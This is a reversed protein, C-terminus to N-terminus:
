QGFLNRIVGGLGGAAGGVGSVLGEISIGLVAAVSMGMRKAFSDNLSFKPDNLNGELVFEVVIKGDRDKLSTVVAQRPVGMFTGSGSDSPALELGSLTITGPANLQNKRVKSKIDLDMTGRRVGSETAKILYPQLAILDVGRLRTSLESNKDALETWGAIAMTGNRHVGKITGKLDIGTRGSLSPVELNDVKAHLQELRIKHAPRRVTADFYELVGGRLEIAGISVAQATSTGGAQKPRELLSPLLRLRGDRARLMSIYAQDIDIRDIRIKGSVLGLLDPAIVIRQARLADTAPWGKPARIRIGRVEITSWGAVIEEVESEPGLAQEVQSKLAKAAYHLGVTAATGLVVIASALIIAWRKLKKSNM